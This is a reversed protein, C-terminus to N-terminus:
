DEYKIKLQVVTPKRFSVIDITNANAFVKLREKTIRMGDGYTFDEPFGIGNDEINIVIFQGERDIRLRILQEAQNKPRLGHKIANEVIPQLLLPPVNIADINEVNIEFIAKIGDEFRLNELELYKEIMNLEARLSIKTQQSLKLSNRLFMSFRSIYENSQERKGQAVMGQISNLINFVLHPNLQTSLAKAKLQTMSEKLQAKAKIRNIRFRILTLLIVIIILGVISWFWLTKWFPTAIHITIVSEESYNLGDSTASVRLIYDGPRLDPYHLSPDSTIGYKDELGELKYKYHLFPSQLSLNSLGFELDNDDYSFELHSTDKFTYKGSSVSVIKLIPSHVSFSSVPKKFIKKNTSFYLHDNEIKVQNVFPIPEFDVLDLQVKNAYSSVDFSYVGVSTSISVLDNSIDGSLVQGIRPFEDIILVSGKDDVQCLKADSSIFYTIGEIDFVVVATSKVSVTMEILLTYPNFVLIENQKVVYFNTAGKFININKNLTNPTVIKVYDGSFYNWRYIGQLYVGIYLSDNYSIFKTCSYYEDNASMSEQLSGTGSILEVKSGAGYISGKIEFVDYIKQNFLGEIYNENYYFLGSEFGVYLMGNIEKFGTINENKPSEYLIIARNSNITKIGDELTSFWFVGDSSQEVSSVSFGELLRCRFKFEGQFLEYCFVGGKDTCVFLSNGFSYAGICDYKLGFPLREITNTNINYSYVEGLINLIFYQDIKTPYVSRREANGPFEFEALKKYDKGIELRTSPPTYLTTDPYSDYVIYDKSGVTLISVERGTAAKSTDVAILESDQNFCYYGARTGIHYLGESDEFFSYSSIGAPLYKYSTDSNLVLEVTEEKVRFFEGTAYVGVISSDKQPFLHFVARSASHNQNEITVFEQGNYRSLGHDSAIWLYGEYGQVIHYVENSPLGDEETINVIPYETLDQSSALTSCLVIILTM